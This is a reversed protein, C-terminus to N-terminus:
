CRYKRRSKKTLRKIWKEVESTRQWAPLNWYDGSVKVTHCQGYFDFTIEKKGFQYWPPDVFPYKRACENAIAHLQHKSIGSKNAADGLCETYTNTCGSVLLLSLLGMAYPTIKKIQNIGLM